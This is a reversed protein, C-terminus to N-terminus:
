ENWFFALYRYPNRSVGDSSKNSTNLFGKVTFGAEALLAYEDVLENAILGHYCSSGGQKVVVWVAQPTKGLNITQSNTGDGVYSGVVMHIRDHAARIKEEVAEFNGNVEERRLAERARWLKLGYHETKM